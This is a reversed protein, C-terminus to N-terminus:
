ARHEIELLDVLDYLSHVLLCDIDKRNHRNHRDLLIPTIGIARSGLVDHIYSDGVHLTFDSIANARQLALEYL